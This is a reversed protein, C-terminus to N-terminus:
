DIRELWGFADESRGYQIATIEDYLRTALAGTQGDAVQIDENKYCIEGVPSIVAATGSAFM